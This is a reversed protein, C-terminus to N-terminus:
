GCHWLNHRWAQHLFCACRHVHPLCTRSIPCLMRQASPLLCSLCALLVFFLVPISAVDALSCRSVGQEHVRCNNCHLGQLLGVGGSSASASQCLDDSTTTELLLWRSQCLDDSTLQLFCCRSQVYSQFQNAADRDFSLSAIMAEEQRSIRPQKAAIEAATTAHGLPRVARLFLVSNKAHSAPSSPQLRQQPPPTAWRDCQACLLLYFFLM